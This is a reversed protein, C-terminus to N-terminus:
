EFKFPKFHQHSIVHSIAKKTESPSLKLLGKIRGFQAMMMNSVILVVLVALMMGGAEFDCWCAAWM